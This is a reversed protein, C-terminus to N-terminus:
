CAASLELSMHVAHTPVMASLMQGHQSHQSRCEGKLLVLLLLCCRVASLELSMQAAHTPVMASLM